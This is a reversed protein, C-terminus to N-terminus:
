QPCVSPSKSLEAKRIPMQDILDLIRFLLSNDTSYSKVEGDYGILWMGTNNLMFSPARYNPNTNEIFTIIRVKRDNLQCMNNSKFNDITELTM